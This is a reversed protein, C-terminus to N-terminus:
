RMQVRVERPGPRRVWSRFLSDATSNKLQRLSTARRTEADGSDRIAVIMRGIRKQEPLPPVAVLLSKVSTPNINAQSAGPTAMRGLREQTRRAHLVEFLWRADTTSPEVRLRLLYSAFSTPGHLDRVYGVKGVLALTNTRNLLIDGEDLLLDPEIPAGARKLDIQNVHGNVLDGMRVVPTGTGGQGLPVNTGYEISQLLSGLRAVEWSSPIVGVETVAGEDDHNHSIGREVAVDVLSLRLVETAAVVADSCEIAEDIGDLTAAIARQENPPPLVIRFTRMLGLNLGSRGDGTVHRLADYSRDLVHFLYRSDLLGPNPTIAALSQNCAAALGLLAVRGRTAGQGNLAVMVTGPAFVKANSSALGAQTIKEATVRVVRQKVEGSAMWAIEGNWYDPRGRSPTGGTEIQAVDGLPVLRWDAPWDARLALSRSCSM